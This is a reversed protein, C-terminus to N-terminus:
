LNVWRLAQVQAPLVTSVPEQSALQLMLLAASWGKQKHLLARSRSVLTKRERLTTSQPFADTADSLEQLLDISVGAAAKAACYSLSLAQELRSELRTAAEQMDPTTAGEAKKCEALLSPVHAHLRRLNLELMAQEGGQTDPLPVLCGKVVVHGDAPGIMTGQVEEGVPDHIHLRALAPFCHLVTAVARSGEPGVGCRSLNLEQLSVAGGLGAQKKTSVEEEEIAM